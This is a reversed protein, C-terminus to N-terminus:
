VFRYHEFKIAVGLIGESLAETRVVVGSSTLKSSGWELSGTPIAIKVSLNQGKQIICNLLVYVGSASLNFVTANEELKKGELSHGLIMAPYACKMRPKERREVFSSSNQLNDM